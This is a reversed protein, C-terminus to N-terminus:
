VIILEFLAASVVSAIFKIVPASYFSSVAEVFGLKGEKESSLIKYYRCMKNSAEPHTKLRLNGYKPSKFAVTPLLLFPLFICWFKQFLYVKLKIYYIYNITKCFLM